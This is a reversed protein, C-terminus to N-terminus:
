CKNLQDSLPKLLDDSIVPPNSIELSVDYDELSSEREEQEMLAADGMYFSIDRAVETLEINAEEITKLNDQVEWTKYLISPVKFKVVVRDIYNDNITLWGYQFKDGYTEKAWASVRLKNSEAINIIQRKSTFKENVKMVVSDTSTNVTFSTANGIFKSIADNVASSTKDELSCSM